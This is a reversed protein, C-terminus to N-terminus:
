GQNRQWCSLDEKRTCWNEKKGKVAKNQKQKELVLSNLTNSIKKIDDPEFGACCDRITTELFYLYDSQLELTSFKQVVMTSLEQFETKNTPEFNDITKVGPVAPVESVEPVEDSIGFADKAIELDAEEQARQREETTLERTQEEMLKIEEMKALLEVKKKQEREKIKEELTKKKKPESKPVAKEADEEEEDDWNDKLGDDEEDEGNFTHNNNVRAPEFDEDDWSASM